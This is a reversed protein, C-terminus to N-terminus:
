VMLLRPRVDTDTFEYFVRKQLALFRNMDRKSLVYYPQGSVVFSSIDGAVVLSTGNDILIEFFTTQNQNPNLFYGVLSPYSANRYGIPDLFLRSTPLGVTGQKGSAVVGPGGGDTMSTVYIGADTPGWAGLLTSGAGQWIRNRPDNPEAVLFTSWTPEFLTTHVGNGVRYTLYATAAAFSGASFAAAIRYDNTGSAALPAGSVTLVQSTNSVINRVVGDLYLLKYGAWQNETWLM